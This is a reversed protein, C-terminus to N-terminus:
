TASSSGTETGFEVIPPPKPTSSEHWTGPVAQDRRGRIMSSVAERAAPVVAITVGVGSLFLTANRLKQSRAKKARKQAAQLQTAMEVLQARLVPDSALRRALGSVGTQSRARRQAASGAVIAAALRRRLKEDKYLPAVFHAV